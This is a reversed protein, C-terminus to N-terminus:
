RNGAGSCRGSGIIGPNFMRDGFRGRMLDPGLELWIGDAPLDCKLFSNRLGAQHINGIGWILSKGFILIRLRDTPLLHFFLLSQIPLDDGKERPGYTLIENM